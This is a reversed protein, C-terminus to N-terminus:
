NELDERMLPNVADGAFFRALEIALQNCAVSETAVLFPAPLLFVPVVSLGAATLDVAGENEAEHVDWVYAQVKTERSWWILGLCGGAGMAGGCEAWGSGEDNATDGSVAVVYRVGTSAVEKRVLPRELLLSLEKVTRPVTNPEFWPYMRDVFTGSPELPILGQSAERLSRELCTLFPNKESNVIVVKEGPLINLSDGYTGKRVSAPMCGAALAVPIMLIASNM